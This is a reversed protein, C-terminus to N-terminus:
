KAEKKPTKGKVTDIDKAGDKLDSVLRSIFIADDIDKENAVPDTLVIIGNRQMVNSHGMDLDNEGKLVVQDVFKKLQKCFDTFDDTMETLEPYNEGYSNIFEEFNFIGGPADPYKSYDKLTDLLKILQSIVKQSHLETLEEMRVYKVKNPFHTPRLFFTSMEKPKSLLKPFYISPNKQVYDIFDDYSSDKIWFKIIGPKTPHKFAAGFAGRGLEKFGSADLSKIVGEMDVDHFKKVGVLEDLRM